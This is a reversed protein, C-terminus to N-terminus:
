LEINTLEKQFKETFSQEEVINLAYLYKSKMQTVKPRNQFFSEDPKSVVYKLKNDFYRNLEDAMRIRSVLETGTVDLVFSKFNKWNNLLWVIAKIVDSVTTCTRYFPHFIDATEGKRICNLCYTIFKDNASVVYSLRICKFFPSTKFEDEIAKKMKGYATYAQTESDEDYIHGPIDGFAADSSFFLVKVNRMIAERIFYSTGTVNIDWCKEFENACMDPGSIAATFIIFDIGKLKDYDFEEPSTLQLPLDVDGVIDIKVIECQPIQSTFAAMLHKAIYGSSGVIAIKMRM